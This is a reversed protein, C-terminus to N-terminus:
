KAIKTKNHYSKQRHFVGFIALNRLLSFFFNAVQRNKALCFLASSGYQQALNHSFWLYVLAGL